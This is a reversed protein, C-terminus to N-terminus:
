KNLPCWSPIESEAKLKYPRISVGVCRFGQRDAAYKSKLDQNPNTTLTCVVAMDDDCFWDHPDPDNIIKHHNCSLCSKKNSKKETYEM